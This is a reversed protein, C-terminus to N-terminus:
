FWIWKRAFVPSKWSVFPEDERNGIERRVLGVKEAELLRDEISSADDKVGVLGQMREAVEEGTPKSAHEVIDVLEREQLPLKRYLRMAAQQEKRFLFAQYFVVAVLLGLMAMSM